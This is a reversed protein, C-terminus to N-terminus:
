NVDHLSTLPVSKAYRHVRFIADNVLHSLRDNLAGINKQTGLLSDIQLFHPIQGGGLSRAIAGLNWNLNQFMDGNIDMMHELKLLTIEDSSQVSIGQVVTLTNIVLRILEDEKFNGPLTGAPFEKIQLLVDLMNKSEEILGVSIGNTEQHILDLDNRFESTAM